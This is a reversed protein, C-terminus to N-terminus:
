LTSHHWVSTEKWFLGLYESRDTNDTIGTCLRVAAELKKKRPSNYLITINSPRHTENQALLDFSDNLHEFLKDADHETKDLKSGWVIGKGM